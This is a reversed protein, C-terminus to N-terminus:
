WGFSFCVNPMNILKINLKLNMRLKWPLSLLQFKETSLPYHILYFNNQRLDKTKGQCRHFVNRHASKGCM